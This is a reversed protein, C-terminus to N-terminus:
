NEAFLVGDLRQVAEQAAEPFLHGYTDFTMEISAHRLQKQSLIADDPALPVPLRMHPMRHCHYLWRGPEKPVWTIEFTEMIEVSHTFEERRM